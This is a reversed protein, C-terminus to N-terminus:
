RPFAIAETFGPVIRELDDTSAETELSLLAGYVYSELSVGAHTAFTEALRLLYEPLRVHKLEVPRLLSPLVRPAERGLADHIEMVTWRLTAASAVEQWTVLTQRRGGLQRRKRRVEGRVVDSEILALMEGVNLRLLQAAAYATYEIRPRLFIARIAERHSPALNM